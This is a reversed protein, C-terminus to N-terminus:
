RPCLLVTGDSDVIQGFHDHTPTTEPLGLLSQYWKFSQPVDAVGIITWTRKMHLRRLSFGAANQQYGFPRLVQLSHVPLGEVAFPHAIQAHLREPKLCLFPFREGALDFVRHV